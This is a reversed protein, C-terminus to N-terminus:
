NLINIKEQKTLKDKLTKFLFCLKVINILLRLIISIINFYNLKVFTGAFYNVSSLKKLDINNLYYNHKPLLLYGETFFGKYFLHIIYYRENELNFIKDLFSKFHLIVDLDKFFILYSKGKFFDRKLSFIVINEKKLFSNLIGLKYHNLGNLTLLIKYPFNQKEGKIFSILRGRNYIKKLKINLNM